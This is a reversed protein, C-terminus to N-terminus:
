LIWAKESVGDARFLFRRDADRSFALDFVSGIHTQRRGGRGNDLRITVPKTGEPPPAVVVEEVFTGDKQFVQIRFIQGIM